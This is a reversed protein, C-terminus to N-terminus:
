IAAYINLRCTAQCNGSSCQPFDYENNQSFYRIWNLLTNRLLGEQQQCLFAFSYYPFRLQEMDRRLISFFDQELRTVGGQCTSLPQLVCNRNADGWQVVNAYGDRNDVEQVHDLCSQIASLEDLDPRQEQVYALYDEVMFIQIYGNPDQYYSTSQSLLHCVESSIPRTEAGSLM